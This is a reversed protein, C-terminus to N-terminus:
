ETVLRISGVTVPGIVPTLGAVQEVAPVFTVRVSSEDWEGRARLYAVLDTIDYSASLGHHGHGEGGHHHSAGFASFLGVFHPVEGKTDRDVQPNNLYIEYNGPPNKTVIDDLQLVVRRPPEEEVAVAEDLEGLLSPAEDALSLQTTVPEHAVEVAEDSSAIERQAVTPAAETPAAAVAV